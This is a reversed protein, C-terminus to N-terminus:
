QVTSYKYLLLQALCWQVWITNIGTGTRRREHRVADERCVAHNHASDLSFSFTFVRRDVIM